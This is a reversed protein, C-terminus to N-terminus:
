DSGESAYTRRARARVYVWYIAILIVFWFMCLRLGEAVPSGAIAREFGVYVAVCTVAYLLTRLRFQFYQRVSLADDSLSTQATREFELALRRADDADNEAVIVQTATSLGCPLGGVGSQLLDNNVSAIMGREYLANRLLHAQEANAATYIVRQTSM